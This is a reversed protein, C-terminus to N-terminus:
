STDRAFLSLRLIHICWANIKTYM